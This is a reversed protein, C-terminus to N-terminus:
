KLIKISIQILYQDYEKVSLEDLLVDEYFYGEPKLGENKAFELIRDYTDKINLYGKTHYATLYSGKERIFNYSDSTKSVKTFFYDYSDLDDFVKESDVMCGLSYPSIINHENLYEYHKKISAAISKEGTFPVTKTIVLFEDKIKEELLIESTNIGVASKTISIKQSILGKMKQLERIKTDLSAEEKELLLIYEDPTRKNLYAKIEKLPMNVEKLTAIVNFVEAQYVSYYRYHNNGKIEPSFVGIKDYHFLTDKSVGVLNAFEGTTFYIHSKKKM